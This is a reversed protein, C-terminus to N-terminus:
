RIEVEYAFHQAAGRSLRTRATTRALLSEHYSGGRVAMPDDADRPNEDAPTSPPAAVASSIKRLKTDTWEAVHGM